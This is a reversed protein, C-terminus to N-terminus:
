TPIVIVEINGKLKKSLRLTMKNEPLTEQSEGMVLRTVESKLCYEMITKEVHSSRLVTMEADVAKSIDFLYDLAEGEHSNGLINYGEQAVHVVFLEGGYKSRLEVGRQILRECTKQQTVCVMTHGQNHM